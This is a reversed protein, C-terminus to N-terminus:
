DDIAQSGTPDHRADSRRPESAERVTAAALTSLLVAPAVGFTLRSISTELLWYINYRPPIYILAQIAIVCSLYVLPLALLCLAFRVRRIMSGPVLALTAALSVLVLLMNPATYFLSAIAEVIVPLRLAFESSDIPVTNLIGLRRCTLDWLLFMLAGPFLAIAASRLWRSARYRFNLGLLVVTSACAIWWFLGDNKTAIASTLALGGVVLLPRDDRLLGIISAACGTIAFLILWSDAGAAHQSRLFGSVSMPILALAAALPPPVRRVLISFAALPLLAIFIAVPLHLQRVELAASRMFWAVTSPLLLPYQWQSIVLQPESYMEAPFVPSEALVKARLLWMVTGDWTYSPPGNSLVMGAKLNFVGIAVLPLLSVVVLWLKLPKSDPRVRDTPGALALTAVGIVCAAIASKWGLGNLSWGFWAAGIVPLLLALSGAIPLVGLCLELRRRRAFILGVPLGLALWGITAVLVKM